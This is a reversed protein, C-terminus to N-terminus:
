RAARLREPFTALSEALPPPSGAPRDREIVQNYEKQIRAIEDYDKANLAERLRDPFAQLSEILTPSKTERKIEEWKSQPAEKIEGEKPLNFRTMSTVLAKLIIQEVVKSMPDADPLKMLDAFKKPDQLDQALRKAVPTQADMAVMRLGYNVLMMPRNLLTPIKPIEGAAINGVTSKVLAQIRKAEKLRDEHAEIKKMGESFTRLYNKWGSGGAGEIADDIHKQINRELGSTLRKDWNSTEKSFKDITNGIEKRITYLDRADIKGTDDALSAIKEKVASLSKQVVDSARTGPRSAMSDIADTVNKIPVGGPRGPFIPANAMDLAQKRMPATVIDLDKAFQDVAVGHQRAVSPLVDEIGNAGTLDKQLRAVAGGIVRPKGMSQEALTEAVTPQAGPVFETGGSRLAAHTKALEEGPIRTAADKAIRSVARESGFGAGVTAGVNGVLNGAWKAAGAIPLPAMGAALEAATQAIPGGGMERTTGGAAAGSAASAVALGPRQGLSELLGKIIPQGVSRSAIEAGKTIGGVGAMTGAVDSFVRESGTEPKPLGLKDMMQDLYNTGAAKDILSVIGGAGAGAGAGLATGVGPIVSGAAGGLMAGAAVPGAARAAIGAQRLFNSGEPKPKEEVTGADSRAKLVREKLSPHDPPIDDPINRVVIGDKTEIEYPM